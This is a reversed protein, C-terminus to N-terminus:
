VKNKKRWPLVGLGLLGTGFLLVSPPLPVANPPPDTRDYNNVDAIIPAAFSWGGNFTASVHEKLTGTLIDGDWALFDFTFVNPSGVDTGGLNFTLDTVTDGNAKAYGPNIIEGSWSNNNFAYAGNTWESGGSVMLFEMADFNGVGSENFQQAWDAVAIGPLCIVAGLALVIVFKFLKKRM